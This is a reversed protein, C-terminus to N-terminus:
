LHSSSSLQKHYHCVKRKQSGSRAPAKITPGVPGQQLPFCESKNSCSISIESSPSSSLNDDNHFCLFLSHPHQKFIYTLPWLSRGSFSFDFAKLTHFRKREVALDPRLKSLQKLNSRRRQCLYSSM